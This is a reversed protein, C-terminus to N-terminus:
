INDNNGEIEDIIALTYKDQEISYRPKTGNNVANLFDQIEDSYQNEIINDAYGDRHEINDYLSITQLENNAINYVQLDDNHGHWFIHLDEGIVELSTTAKRSVTDAVFVGISGNKHRFNCIVSDNFDIELNTCKQANSDILEIKGFTNIIWPLQIALIERVGNTEKKGIFFDKYSEWPHWDPLYQGIHYIYTVPKNTNKVLEDIKQIQLNYLMTSSMFVTVNKNQATEIIDDYDNSVLNLETFVNIGANVLKLIIEAHHGPSTCVFALDPKEKIATDLDGSVIFGMEDAQKQRDPNSDVCIIEVQDVLKQLLRIRRRGMSGYGIILAKM